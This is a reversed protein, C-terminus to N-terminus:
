QKTDAQQGRELAKIRDIEEDILAMEAEVRILKENLMSRYDDHSIRKVPFYRSNLWREFLGPGDDRPLDSADIANYAAQGALGFISFCMLGPIVNTRGGSIVNAKAAFSAQAFSVLHTVRIATAEIELAFKLM